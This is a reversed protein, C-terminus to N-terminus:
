GAAQELGREPCIHTGVLCAPHLPDRDSFLSCPSRHHWAQLATCASPRGPRSLLCAAPIQMLVPMCLQLLSTFCLCNLCCSPLHTVGDPYMSLAVLAYGMESKGVLLANHLASSCLKGAVLTVAVSALLISCARRIHTFAVCMLQAAM